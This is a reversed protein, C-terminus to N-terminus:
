ILIKTNVKGDDVKTVKYVRNGNSGIGVLQKDKFNKMYSASSEVEMEM